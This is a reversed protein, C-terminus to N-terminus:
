YFLCLVFCTLIGYWCTGFLWLWGFVISHGVGVWFFRINYWGRLLLLGSLELLVWVWVWIGFYILFCWCVFGGWLSLDLCGVFEVWLVGLLWCLCTWLLVILPMFLLFIGGFLVLWGLRFVM